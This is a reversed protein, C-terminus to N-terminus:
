GSGGWAGPFAPIRDPLLPPLPPVQAPVPASQASIPCPALTMLASCAALSMLRVSHKM